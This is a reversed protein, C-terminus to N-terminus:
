SLCPSDFSFNSYIAFLLCRLICSAFSFSNMPNIQKCGFTLSKAPKSVSVLDFSIVAM